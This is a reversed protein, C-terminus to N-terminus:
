DAQDERALPYVLLARYQVATRVAADDFFTTKIKGVLRGICTALQDAPPLHGNKM